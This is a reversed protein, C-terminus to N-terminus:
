VLVLYTYNISYYVETGTPGQLTTHHKPDRKRMEDWCCAGGELTELSQSESDRLHQPLLNYQAVFLGVHRVLKNSM